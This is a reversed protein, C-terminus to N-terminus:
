SAEKASEAKVWRRRHKAVEKKLFTAGFAAAARVNPDRATDLFAKSQLWRDSHEACLGCDRDVDRPEPGHPWTCQNRNKTSM